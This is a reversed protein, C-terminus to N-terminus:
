FKKGYKNWLKRYNNTIRYFNKALSDVQKNTAKLSQLRREQLHNLQNKVISVKRSQGLKLSNIVNFFFLFFIVFFKM